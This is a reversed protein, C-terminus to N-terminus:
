LLSRIEKQNVVIHPTEFYSSGDAEIVIITMGITSLDEPVVKQIHEDHFQFCPLIFGDYVHSYEEYQTHLYHHNHAWLFYRPVPEGIDRADYIMSKMLNNLETHKTWKRRGPRPGHHTINMMVGNHELRAGDWVYRGDHFKNEETGPQFPDAGYHRALGEECIGGSGSHVATGRFFRLIDKGKEYGSIDLAEDFLTQFMRTQEGVDNTTMENSKFTNGQTADGVFNIVLRSGRRLEKVREWGEVWQNYLMEQLPGAYMMGGQTSLWKPPMIGFSSGVQTDCPFAIVVREGTM